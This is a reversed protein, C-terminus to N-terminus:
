QRTEVRQSEVLAIMQALGNMLEKATSPTMPFDIASSGPIHITMFVRSIDVSTGLQFGGHPGPVFKKLDHVDFRVGSQTSNLTSETAQIGGLYRPAEHAANALHHILSPLAASPFQIQFSRGHEGSFDLTAYEQSSTRVRFTTATLKPM